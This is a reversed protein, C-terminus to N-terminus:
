SLKSSLDKKIANKMANNQAIQGYTFGMSFIIRAENTDERETKQIYEKYAEKVIDNSTKM